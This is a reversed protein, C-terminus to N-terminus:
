QAIILMLRVGGAYTQYAAYATSRQPATGLSISVFPGVALGVGGLPITVDIGARLRFYMVDLGSETYGQDELDYASNTWGIFGLGAGVGVWPRVVGHMAWSAELAVPIQTVCPSVDGPSEYCAHSYTVTAGVGLGNSFRYLLEGGVVASSLEYYNSPSPTFLQWGGILGLEVGPREFISRDQAFAAGPLLCLLLPAGWRRFWGASGGSSLGDRTLSAPSACWHHRPRHSPARSGSRAALSASLVTPLAGEM